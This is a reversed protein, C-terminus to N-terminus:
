LGIGRLDSALHHRLGLLAHELAVGLGGLLEDADELGLRLDKASAFRASGGLESLHHLHVLRIASDDGANGDDLTGVM